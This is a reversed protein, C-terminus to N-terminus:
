KEDSVFFTKVGKGMRGIDKGAGRFTSGCGSAALVFCLLAGGLVLRIKM